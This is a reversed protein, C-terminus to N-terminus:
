GAYNLGMKSKVEEWVPETAKCAKKAGEALIDWIINQDATFHHRKERLPAITTELSAALEKKCAVCGLEGSQCATARESLSDTKIIKHFEYVSCIDPHGPDNKRVKAPDTVMTQVKKLIDGTEDSLFISNDLSKSMKRGDTGPILPYERLVEQPEPFTDGYLTNFRRAIERTIELHPRQDKGIPVLEGKYALIDAAQLVPYGLLGHGVSDTINLDRVMDKVTPNRELWGTPTIMSLALYLEYHIPVQSQIFVTAKNPDVGAALWDAVMQFVNDKIECTHDYATTLVHLDAVEFFCEHQNQMEVYSLLVSLYHGIHMRGTPRMGSLLRSM